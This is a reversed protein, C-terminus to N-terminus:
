EEDEQDEDEKPQGLENSLRDLNHLVQKIVKVNGGVSPSYLSKDNTYEIEGVQEEIVNLGDQVQRYWEALGLKKELDVLTAEGRKISDRVGQRTIGVHETIEALSLDQNYYMEIMERQKETLAASYFDLLVSINLDKAM